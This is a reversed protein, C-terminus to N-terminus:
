DNKEMHGCKKFANGEIASKTSFLTLRRDSDGLLVSSGVSQAVTLVAAVVLYTCFVYCWNGSVLTRSRGLSMVPGSNEVVIAPDYLIWLTMVYVGPSIFLFAGIATGLLAIVSAFLLTPAKQMGRKLCEIWDPKRHAYVEAAARVVAANIISGVAVNMIM